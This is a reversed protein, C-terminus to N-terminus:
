PVLVNTSRQYKLYDANSDWKKEATTELTPIGAVHLLLLTITIPGLVRM